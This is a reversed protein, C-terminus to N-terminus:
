LGWGPVTPFDSPLRNLIPILREREDSKLDILKLIETRTPVSKGDHGDAIWALFRLMWLVLCRALDRAESLHGMHIEHTSFGTDGHLLASRFEYLKKFRKKLKDREANTTGFITSVRRRLLETLGNNVNEGITAEIATIHWLMQELEVKNVFAKVLFNLAVDLFAWEKFARVKGLQDSVSLLFDSMEEPEHGYVHLGIVPREGIEEGEDNMIPETALRSLDPAAQPPALLNDSVSLVFPVDPYIGGLHRSHERIPPSSKHDYSMEHRLWDVLALRALASEIPAPHQSYKLGVKGFDGSRLIWFGLQPAPVTAETVIFWCKSLVRLDLAAWTYFIRKTQNHLILDLEESTFQRIEFDLRKTPMSGFEVFQIPALYTVRNTTASFAARYRAEVDAYDIAKGEFLAEYVGSLRWFASVYSKWFFQKEFQGEKAIGFEIGTAFALQAFEDRSEIEEAAKVVTAALQASRIASREARRSQDLLLSVYTRFAGEFSEPM